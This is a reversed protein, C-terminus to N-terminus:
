NSAEIRYFEAAKGADIIITATGNGETDTTATGHDAGFSELNTSGRVAYTTSPAGKFHIIFAGTEIRHSLIELPGGGGSVTVTYTGTVPGSPTNLTVTYTTTASPAYTVQVIGDVPIVEGIQPDIFVSTVDAGVRLTLQGSEGAQLAASSLSAHLLGRSRQWWADRHERIEEGTLIRDYIILDDIKGRWFSGDLTKAAGIVWAGQSPEFFRGPVASGAPQGDIYWSVINQTVDVVGVLHSWARADVKGTATLQGGGGVNARLLGTDDVSLIQRGIYPSTDRQSVIVRNTSGSGPNTEVIAEVTFGVLDDDNPDIIRDTIIAAAANFTGAGDIFGTAGLNVAIHNRLLGDHPVAGGASDVILGSSVNENFRYWAVPKASRITASHSTDPAPPGTELEDSGVLNTFRIKLNSADAAPIDLFGRLDTIEVAGDVGYTLEGTVPTPFDGETAAWHLRVKDPVDEDPSPLATAEFGLIVPPTLQNYTLAFPSTYTIGDATTATLTYTASATPLIGLKEVTREPTIELSGIGNDITVSVIDAGVFARLDLPTGTVVTSASGTFYVIGKTLGYWTGHHLGIRSDEFDGDGNPDDLLSGYVAIDDIEGNFLNSVLNKGSGFVWGGDTAELTVGESPTIRDALKGNVYWRFEGHVPDVVFVVHNWSDPALGAASVRTAGGLVSFLRGDPRISVIQRGTGGIDQQSIIVGNVFTASSYKLILEVSFGAPPAEGVAGPNLIKRNLVTTSGGFVGAGDIIGSGGAILEGQVAGNNPADNEASDVLHKSGTVENFRYWALPAAARVVSGRADEEQPTATASATGESNSATLIFGSAALDLDVFGVLVGEPITYVLNGDPLEGERIEATTPNPLGGESINWHFRIKGASPLRTITFGKIEPESLVPPVVDSANWFIAHSVTGSFSSVQSSNTNFRPDIANTTDRALGGANGTNLTRVSLTDNGSWNGPIGTVVFSDLIQNQQGDQKVRLELTGAHNWSASFSYSVGAELVGITSQLGISPLVADNLSDPHSTAEAGQKSLLTPVGGILYLGTGNSNGGIEILVKTGSLDATTPVFSINFTFGSSHPHSGTGVAPVGSLNDPPQVSGDSVLGKEDSDYLATAPELEVLIEASAPDANVLAVAAALYVFRQKKM